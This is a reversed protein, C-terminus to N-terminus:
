WIKKKLINLIEDLKEDVKSKEELKKVRGDLLDMKELIENKLRRIKEQSYKISGILVAECIKDYKEIFKQIYKKVYHTSLVGM